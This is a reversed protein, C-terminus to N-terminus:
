TSQGTAKKIAARAMDQAEQLAELNGKIPTMGVVLTLTDLAEMLEPAAAILRANAESEEESRYRWEGPMHCRAIFGKSGTERTERITVKGKGLTWPGPTHKTEM